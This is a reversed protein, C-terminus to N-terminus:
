LYEDQIIECNKLEPLKEVLIEWNNLTLMIGQKGQFADREYSSLGLLDSVIMALAKPRDCYIMRLSDHKDKAIKKININIKFEHIM